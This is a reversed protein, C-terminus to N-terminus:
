RFVIGSWFLLAGFDIWDNKNEHPSRIRSEIGTLMEKPSKPTPTREAVSVRNPNRNGSLAAAKCFPLWTPKRVLEAAVSQSLKEAFQLRQRATKRADRFEDQHSKTNRPRLM